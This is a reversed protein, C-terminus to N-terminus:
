ADRRALLVSASAAIAAIWLCYGLFGSWAGAAADDPVVATIQHGANRTLWRSVTEAASGPMLKSLQPVVLLAAIAAVVSGATQMSLLDVPSM